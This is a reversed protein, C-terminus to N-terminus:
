SAKKLELRIQKAHEVVANTLTKGAIVRAIENITQEENLKQISTITKNNKIQKDIYYNTHGSAVITPLHTVCIVQHSESIIKLKEAVKKGAEGSIGTDIEDFIMTPIDDYEGLVTKIALMVRSLEGGSAIKSLPKLEDGINTCILLEVNDLGNDLFDESKNFEFKLFAKKMELDQMENNIKKEIKSAYDKRIKTIENAKEHLKTKLDQKQVTLKNIIEESNELFEKENICKDLYELIEEISKGYKRKLNSIVDLREEISSQEAEDFDVEMALDAITDVSDQLNYYADNLQSLINSYKDDISSISNIARTVESLEDLINNNIIEHSSNLASAIKESNMFLKRRSNLMEEEDIKLNAGQIETIQFDLLDLKRAREQEDGFNSSIKKCIDRYENLYSTYESLPKKLKEYAFRDLLTIHTSSDLLSQNDYQGHIDILKSGLERLESVTCLRGNIKCINKGNLHIERSLAYEEDSTYFYAEVFAMEEGTRIIEKSVRSGTIANIADIVLSKGAGTEGTIINLSDEFDVTLDDIIGINKIHLQGLM